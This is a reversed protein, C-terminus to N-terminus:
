RDAAWLSTPHAATKKVVVNVGENTVEALTRMRIRWDIPAADICLIKQEHACCDHDTFLTGIRRRCAAM